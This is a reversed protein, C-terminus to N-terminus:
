REKLSRLTMVGLLTFGAAVVCRLVVGLRSAGLLMNRWALAAFALGLCLYWCGILRVYIPKQPVPNRPGPM